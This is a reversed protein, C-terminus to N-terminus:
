RMEGGILAAWDGCSISKKGRITPLKAFFEELCGDQASAFLASMLNHESCYGYAVAWEPTTADDFTYEQDNALNFTKM